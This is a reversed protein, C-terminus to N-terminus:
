IKFFFSLVCKLISMGKNRKQKYANQKLIYKIITDTFTTSFPSPVALLLLVECEAAPSQMRSFFGSKKIYILERLARM